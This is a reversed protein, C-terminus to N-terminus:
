GEKRLKGLWHEMQRGAAERGGLGFSLAVAIAIAGFTLAFALNVIDDAIGMARLGMAIVVGLIAFRAIRALGTGEAGSARSIALYALNALWYGIVLIAAGLLVDGGFRIFTTVVDRVQHFDLQSAAEVTAFLMAFFLLIGGALRSPQAPGSLINGLGLKDPIADVGLSHLLRVLLEAAFRAVYYTIALIAVAAVINPVAALLTGLMDSAPRSIAEIELADLAAILAPVFVFVMVITGVLRSIKIAPELGAQTGAKDAGAAALLNSVLGALLKGVLWGVFGIIFAAFINPLLDLVKGVMGRVPELLGGLDYADLVAPLFLLIVLWFLVNGVSKVMPQMGAQASIKEDLGTAALGRNVAGRLFTAVVWALLLLLTGAILRPVYGLIQGVLTEFPGSVLPLDLSNLMGILTILIILWFLGTSVPSEVHMAQGTSEAIRADVKLLRLLRSMGARVLVAVVWGLVLIGLAGLIGPLHTGLANQLSTAFASLDM